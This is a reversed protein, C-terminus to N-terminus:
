TERRFRFVFDDSVGGAAPARVADAPQGAVLDHDFHRGAIQDLVDGAPELSKGAQVHLATRAGNRSKAAFALRV